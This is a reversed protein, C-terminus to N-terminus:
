ALRQSSNAMLAALREAAPPHSYHFGAYVPDPTLTSANDQHLKVLASALADGSAERAAFADAEFEHRRSLRAFLPSLFFTFVPVVMLFLLLAIADNPLAVSPQVGLAAYFWLRASLWGLLAFGALSVVSMLAIRKLV